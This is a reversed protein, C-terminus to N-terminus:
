KSDEESLKEPFPYHELNRVLRIRSALFVDHKNETDQYWKLMSM